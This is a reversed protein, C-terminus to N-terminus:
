IESKAESPMKKGNHECKRHWFFLCKLHLHSICSLSPLFSFLEKARSQFTKRNVPSVVLVCLFVKVSIGLSPEVLFSASCCGTSFMAFSQKPYGGQGVGRKYVLLKVWTQAKWLCSGFCYDFSYVMLSAKQIGLPVAFHRWKCIHFRHNVVLGITTPNKKNQKQKRFSVTFASCIWIEWIWKTCFWNFCWFYTDQWQPALGQVWRSCM